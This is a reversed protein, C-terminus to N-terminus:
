GDAAAMMDSWRETDWRNVRTREKLGDGRPVGDLPDLRPNPEKMDGREPEASSKDGTPLGPTSHDPPLPSSLLRPLISPM